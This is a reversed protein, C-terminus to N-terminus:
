ILTFNRCSERLTRKAGSGAAERGRSAVVNARVSLHILLAVQGCRVDRSGSSRTNVCSRGARDDAKVSRKESKRRACLRGRVHLSM